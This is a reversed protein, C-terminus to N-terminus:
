VVQCSTSPNTTRSAGFVTQMDTYSSPTSCSTSKYLQTTQLSKLTQRRPSLLSPATPHAAISSLAIWRGPCHATSYPVIITNLFQAVYGDDDRYRTRAATGRCLADGTALRGQNVVVSGDPLDYTDLGHVQAMKRVSTADEWINFAKKFGGDATFTGVDGPVTGREGRLAKDPRPQWCPLGKGLKLM